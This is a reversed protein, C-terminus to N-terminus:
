GGTRIGREIGDAIDKIYRDKNNEFPRRLYGRGAAGDEGGKSATIPGGPRQHTEHVKFAYATSPGEAGFSVVFTALQDTILSDVRGSADLAGTDEPTVAKARALLNSAVKDMAQIGGRRARKLVARSSQNWAGRIASPGKGTGKHTKGGVGTIGLFKLEIARAM